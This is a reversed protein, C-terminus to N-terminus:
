DFNACTRVYSCMYIKKVESNKSKIKLIKFNIKNRKKSRCPRIGAIRTFSFSNDYRYLIYIKSLIARVRVFHLIQLQWGTNM